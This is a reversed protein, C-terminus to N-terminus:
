PEVACGAPPELTFTAPDSAPDLTIDTYKVKLSTKARPVQLTIEVPFFRGDVDDYETLFADYAHEGRVQVSLLRLDRTGVKVRQLHRDKARLTIVYASEREDLTFAVVEGDEIPIEGLLAQVLAEPPLEIPLHRGVTAATPTGTVCTTEDPRIFVFREGNTVFLGRPAGFFDATELYVSAPEMLEIALKLTGSGEPSDIALKGEGALGKVEAYRKTASALVFRPDELRGYAGFDVQRPCGALLFWALLVANRM